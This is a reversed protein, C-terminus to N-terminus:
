FNVATLKQCKEYLVTPQIKKHRTTNVAKFCKTIPAPVSALGTEADWRTVGGPHVTVVGARGRLGELASANICCVGSV